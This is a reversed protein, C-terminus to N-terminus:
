SNVCHRVFTSLPSTLETLLKRVLGVKELTEEMWNMIVM